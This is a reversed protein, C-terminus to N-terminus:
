LSLRGDPPTGRLLSNQSPPFTRRGFGGPQNAAPPSRKKSEATKMKHELEKKVRKIKAKTARPSLIHVSELISAVCSPSLSIGEHSALLETFHQFTADFYKTRYLHIVSCRVEDPTTSAPKRGRNGHIFFAKGHAKYGALMRNIHRRSCGLTMAARDKNGDPHEALYKIVEYKKQKDM